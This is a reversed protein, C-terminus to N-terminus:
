PEGFKDLAWPQARAANPQWRALFAPGFRKWAEPAQKRAEEESIGLESFFDYGTSFLEDWAQATESQRHKGARRKVPM